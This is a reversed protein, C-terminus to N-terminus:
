TCKPLYMNYKTLSLLFQLDKELAFKKISAEFFQTQLPTSLLRNREQDDVIIEVIKHPPKGQMM